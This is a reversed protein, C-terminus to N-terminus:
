DGLKALIGTKGYSIVAQDEESAFELVIKYEDKTCDIKHSIIWALTSYMSKAHPKSCNMARELIARSVKTRVEEPMVVANRTVIDPLIHPGHSM